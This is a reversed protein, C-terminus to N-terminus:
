AARHVLKAARKFLVPGYVAAVFYSPVIIINGLLMTRYFPLGMIYSQLLGSADKAYMQGDGILWVGFNTFVFFFVSGALAAGLSALMLKRPSTKLRRLALGGLAIIGFASWTFFLIPSNGILIDSAAMIALPVAFAWRTSLFTAAVLTSATVIELNPAIGYAHNVLRWCVASIILGLALLTQRSIKM